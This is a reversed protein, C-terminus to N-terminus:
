DIDSDVGEKESDSDLENDSDESQSNWDGKTHNSWEGSWECDTGSDWDTNAESGEFQDYEIENVITHDLQDDSKFVVEDDLNVSDSMTSHKDTFIDDELWLNADNDAEAEDTEIYVRTDFLSVLRYNSVSALLIGTPVYLRQIEDAFVSNYWVWLTILIHYLDDVQSTPRAKPLERLGWRKSV